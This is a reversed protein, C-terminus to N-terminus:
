KTKGCTGCVTVTEDWAPTDVVTETWAAKVLVKEDWAASVLVQRTEYHGQEPTTTTRYEGLVTYSSGEARIHASMDAVAAAGDGGANTYWYTTYGCGTCQKASWYVSQSSAPVDVVWVDETGYVADHHVTKYEAPHNVTHTVADHHVTKQSWSHIHLGASPTQTPAPTPAPTTAPKQSPAPTAAPAATGNGDNRSAEADKSAADAKNNADPSAAVAPVTSEPEAAAPADAIDVIADPVDVDDEATFEAPPEPLLGCSTFLVVSSITIVFFCVITVWFAKM